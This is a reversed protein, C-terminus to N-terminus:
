ELITSMGKSETSEIYCLVFCIRLGADSRCVQAHMNAANTGPM